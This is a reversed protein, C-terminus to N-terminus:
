RLTTSEGPRLVICRLRSLGCKRNFENPDQRIVPWANYHMPIILGPRLMKAAEIADEMDMTFNGGIPLLAVDIRNRKGLLGMDGFLGTDGAFYLTKGGMDIIFGCALGTYVIQEGIVASGHVARTLKVRGFDFRYSGGIHMPHIDAGQLQCYMALEYPAIIPKHCRRAIRVADGLHDGHGHSVLVADAEVEDWKVPADPNGELFPDIIVSHRGDGIEHCSHGLSKITLM